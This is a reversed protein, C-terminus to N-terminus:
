VRNLLQLNASVKLLQKTTYKYAQGAPPLVFLKNGDNLPFFEGTIKNEQAAMPNAQKGVRDTLVKM